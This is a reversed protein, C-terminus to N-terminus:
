CGGPLRANAKSQQGHKKCSGAAHASEVENLLGVAAHQTIHRYETILTDDIYLCLPTESILNSRYIEICINLILTPFSIFFYLIPPLQLM